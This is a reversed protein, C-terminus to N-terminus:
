RPLPTPSQRNKNINYNISGRLRVYDDKSSLGNSFIMEGVFTGDSSLRATVGKEAQNFTILLIEKGIQITYGPHGRKRDANESIVSPERISIRSGFRDSFNVPILGSDIKGKIAKHILKQAFFFNKVSDAPM